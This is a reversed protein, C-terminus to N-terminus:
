RPSQEAAKRAIRVLGRLAENVSSSDPFLAAVDPELLVLNTGAAYRRAYAGRLGNTFDYEDLMEQDSQEPTTENM